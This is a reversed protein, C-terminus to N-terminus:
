TKARRFAESLETGLLRDYVALTELQLGRLSFNQAVHRRAREGLARRADVSLGLAEELASALAQADGPTVLWGTREHSSVEPEALVTEQPAGLRTAIVPCGLAEAEAASRGFAEPKTSAVVTVWATAFAAAVDAVHGVRKVRGNLGHRTISADLEAVYGDRGQADGALIVVADGMTGRKKLEGAADILVTQGKWDTLRAALLIVKTDPGLGWDKRLKATRDASIM